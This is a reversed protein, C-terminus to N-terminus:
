KKKLWIIVLALVSIGVAVGVILVINVGDPTDTSPRIEVMVTDIAFNGFADHAVLTVNLQGIITPEFTYLINGGEWFESLVLSSNEYIEYSWPTDEFTSWRVTASSGIYAYHWDGYVALIPPTTDGPPTNHNVAVIADLKVDAGSLYQIRVYRAEDLSTDMLDFDTQNSGTGLLEFAIELSNTVFVRYDGGAAVVTFDYGPGDVIEENRGMDLSIYGDEYDTFLTTYQDDPAGITNQGSLYWQSRSPLFDDVYPDGPDIVIDVWLTDIASQDDLTYVLTLNYLGPKWNESRWDDISLEVVYGTVDDADLLENNRFLMWQTGGIVEWVFSVGESGWVITSNGPSSLIYPATPIPITVLCENTTVQGLDDDVVVTINYIGVSLFPVEWDLTYNTPSWTDSATEVGNVLILWSHATVDYLDWSLVLQQSWNLLVESPQLPVIIPPTSPTVQLWFTENYLPLTGNYLKFEVFHTGLDVFDPDIVIDQGTWNLSMFLAGNLTINGILESITSGSWRPLFSQQGKELITHGSREIFYNQINLMVTDIAINGYGDSIALTLNHVGIGLLGYPITLSTPNWFKAYTFNSNQSLVDDIYLTYNSPIQEKNRYNYHVDWTINGDQNLRTADSPSSLIPEFRFRELRYSGDNYPTEFMFRTEWVIEGQPNVEVFAASLGSSPTSPYGWCGIRNGNPLRDADGWGASFYDSPATYDWVENAIMSTENIEIELIRSLGIPSATQNHYDNDFLIFTNENVKEVSHPHFFLHNRPNGEIDFMTFDGYEGLGWLVDSTSHNIKFFTNINRAIYYIIDEEADYFITNSHSIDRYITDRDQSPCWWDESIFDHVDLEWVLTGNMSYERIYDFMYFIGDIYEFSYSFSFVTNNNPNYEYEHHGEFGLLQLSDNGLHWLAAGWETGVLITNPDIFEAPCNFGGTAGLDKQAIVVGNMDMIVLSNIQSSTSADYRYFNFLTHGDFSEASNLVTYNVLGMDIAPTMTEQLTTASSGDEDLPSYLYNEPSEPSSTSFSIGNVFAFM